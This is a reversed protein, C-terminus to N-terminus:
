SPSSVSVADGAPETYTSSRAAHEEGVSSGKRRSGNGFWGGAGKDGETNGTQDRSSPQGAPALLRRPVARSQHIAEPSRLVAIQNPEWVISDLGAISSAAAFFDPAVALEIGV